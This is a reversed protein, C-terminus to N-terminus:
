NKQKFLTIEGTRMQQGGDYRLIFYYTGSPLGEGSWDNKYPKSKLHVQGNRSFITVECDEFQETEPVLFTDNYGDNNPTVGINDPTKSVALRWTLSFISDCYSITRLTDELSGDSRITDIKGNPLRYPRNFGIITDKKIRYVSDISFRLTDSTTCINTDNLTYTLVHNGLPLVSPDLKIVPQNDIRFIGNTPTASLTIATVNKCFSTPIKAISILPKETINYLQRIENLSLIRNYIRIDDLYGKWIGDHPINAKVGHNGNSKRGIEMARAGDYRVSMGQFNYSLDLSDNIYFAFKQRTATMAVYYWKQSELNRSSLFQTNGAFYLSLRRINTNAGSNDDTFFDYGFYNDPNNAGYSVIRPNYSTASGEFYIWASISVSDKIQLSTDTGCVVFDDIGDFYAAKKCNGFRDRGFRVGGSDVGHNRYGSSDALNGDFKYYAVLGTTLTQAVGETFGLLFAFFLFFSLAKYM